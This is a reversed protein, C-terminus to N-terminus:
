HFDAFSVQHQVVNRCQDADYVRRLPEHRFHRSLWRDASLIAKILSSHNLAGSAQCGPGTQWDVAYNAYEGITTVDEYALMTLYM